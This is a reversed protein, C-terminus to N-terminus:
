FRAHQPVFIHVLNYPKKHAFPLYFLPNVGPSSCFDLLAYAAIILTVQGYLLEPQVLVVVVPVRGLVGHPHTLLLIPSVEAIVFLLYFFVIVIKM